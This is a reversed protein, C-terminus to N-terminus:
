SMSQYDGLIDKLQELAEKHLRCVRSESIDLEKSIEKFTQEKRGYYMQLVQQKRPPLQVVAERMRTQTESRVAMAIPDNEDNLDELIDEVSNGQKDTIQSIPVIVVERGKALQTRPLFSLRRAGEVVQGRVRRRAYIEFTYGADPNFRPASEILGMLGEQQMDEPDYVATKPLVRGAGRAIGQAWPIHDVILQDAEPTRRVM